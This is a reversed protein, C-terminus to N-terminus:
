RPRSSRVTLSGGAQNADLDIDAMLVFHKDLLSPDSGIAILQEAATIPYPNNPEGTGGAFEVSRVTTCLGLIIIVFCVANTGPHSKFSAM